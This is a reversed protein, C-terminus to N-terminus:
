SPLTDNQFVRIKTKIRQLANDIAKPSKKMKEAIQQYNLGSLYDDLVECEMKSLSQRVKKLFLEFNEQDIMRQEEKRWFQGARALPYFLGCAKRRYWPQPLSLSLFRAKRDERGNL